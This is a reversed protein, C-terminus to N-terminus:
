NRAIAILYRDLALAAAAAAALVVVVGAGVVVVSASSNNVVPGVSTGVTPSVGDSAVRTNILFSFIIKKKFKWNEPELIFLM